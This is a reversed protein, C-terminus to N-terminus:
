LDLEAGVTDLLDQGNALNVGVLLLQEVGAQAVQLLVNLLTNGKNGGVGAFLHMMRPSALHQSKTPTSKQDITPPNQTHTSYSLPICMSTWYAGFLLYVSVDHVM